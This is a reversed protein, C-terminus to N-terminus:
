GAKAVSALMDGFSMQGMFSLQGDDASKRNEPKKEPRSESAKKESPRKEAAKTTAPKKASSKKAGTKKGKPVPDRRERM